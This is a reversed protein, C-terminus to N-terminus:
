KKITYCGDNGVLKNAIENALERNDEFKIYQDLLKKIVKNYKTTKIKQLTNRENLLTLYTIIYEAVYNNEYLINYYSNILISFTSLLKDLKVGEPTPKQKVLNDIIEFDADEYEHMQDLTLMCIKGKTINRKKTESSVYSVIKFEKTDTKSHEKLLKELEIDIDDLLKIFDPNWNESRKIFKITKIVKNLITEDSQIFLSNKIIYTLEILFDEKAKQDKLNSIIQEEDLYMLIIKLQISKLITETM